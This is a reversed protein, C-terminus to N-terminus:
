TVLPVIVDTETPTETETESPETTTPTETEEPGTAPPIETVSPDLSVIESLPPGVGFDCMPNDECMDWVEFSNWNAAGIKGSCGVDAQGLMQGPDCEEDAFFVMFNSQDHMDDSVIEFSVGAEDHMRKQCGDTSSINGSRMVARFDLECNPTGATIWSIATVGSALLTILSLFNLLHM